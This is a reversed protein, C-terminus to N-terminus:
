TARKYRAIALGAKTKKSPLKHGAHLAAIPVGMSAARINTSALCNLSLMLDVSGLLKVFSAAPLPPVPVVRVHELAREPLPLRDPTPLVRGVGEPLPPPAPATVGYVDFKERRRDWDYLDLALVKARSAARELFPRLGYAGTNCWGFEASSLYMLFLDAILLVD